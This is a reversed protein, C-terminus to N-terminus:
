CATACLWSNRCMPASSTSVRPRRPPLARRRQATVRLTPSLGPRRGPRVPGPGRESADDVRSSLPDHRVPPQLLLRVSTAEFIEFIRPFEAGSGLGYGGILIGVTKPPLGLQALFLSKSSASIPRSVTPNTFDVISWHRVSAFAAGNNRIPIAKINVASNTM